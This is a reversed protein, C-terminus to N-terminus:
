FIPTPQASGKRKRVQSQGRALAAAGTRQLQVPRQSCWEARRLMGAAEPEAGVDRVNVAAEPEGSEEEAQGSQEQIEGSVRGRVRQNRQSRLKAKVGSSM